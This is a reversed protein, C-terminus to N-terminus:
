GLQLRIGKSSKFDEEKHDNIGMLEEDPSPVKHSEWAM